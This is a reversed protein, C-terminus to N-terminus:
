WVVGRLMGSFRIDWVRLVSAPPGKMFDIVVLDKSGVTM